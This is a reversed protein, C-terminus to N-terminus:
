CGGNLSHTWHTFDGLDITHFPELRYGEEALSSSSRNNLADSYEDFKTDTVWYKRGPDGWRAGCSSVAHFYIYRSNYSTFTPKTGGPEVKWWGMTKWAGESETLNFGETETSSSGPKYYHLAVWVPDSTNNKFVITKGGQAKSTSWTAMFLAITLVAISTLLLWNKLKKM